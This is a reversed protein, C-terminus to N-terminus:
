VAYGLRQASAYPHDSGRGTPDEVDLDHEVLAGAIV